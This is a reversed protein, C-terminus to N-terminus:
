DDNGAYVRRWVVKGNQPDMLVSYHTEDNSIEVDKVIQLLDDIAVAHATSKLQRRRRNIAKRWLSDLHKKRDTSYRVLDEMGSAPGGVLDEAADKARSTNSEDDVDHNYTALFSQSTRVSAARHDKEISYVVQPTCFILYAATSPSSSLQKLIRGMRPGGEALSLKELPKNHGMDPEQDDDDDHPALLYGRLVSSIGQRLGLVVLLQHIRFGLRKRFTTRDHHPRFNLSMSLNERVGTLVGVYGFYTVSTAVVPGGDSFVFDVEIVIQRLVDMGWDLTRFHLMSTSTDDDATSLGSKRDVEVRCGGSTCGLLLDLLVNFAVLLHLAVGTAKSIGRLEETEERSYVGRLGFRALVHLLKALMPPAVSRVVDYFLGNFDANSLQQQIHPVIHAYRQAPPLALNVVFRPPEFGGDEDKVLPKVGGAVSSDFGELQISAVDRSRHRLGASQM